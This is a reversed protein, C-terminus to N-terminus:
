WTISKVSKGKKKKDIRPTGAEGPKMFAKDLCQDPSLIIEGAPVGDQLLNMDVVYTRVNM